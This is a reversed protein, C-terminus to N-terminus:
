RKKCYIHNRVGEIDLLDSFATSGQGRLKAWRAVEYDIHSTFPAWVCSKSDHLQDHYSHFGHRRPSSIDGQMSVKAGASRLPFKVIHQGEAHLPMEVEHRRHAHNLNDHDDGARALEEENMPAYEDVPPQEAIPPEWDREQEAVGGEAEAEEEEEEAHDDSLEALDNSQEAHDDGTNSNEPGDDPGDGEPWELDDATTGFYDGVFTNPGHGDDGLAPPQTHPIYNQMEEYITVCAPNRSQALHRSYGNESFSGQCGNCVPM